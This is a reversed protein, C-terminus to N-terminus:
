HESSVCMCMCVSVRVRRTCTCLCTSISVCVGSALKYLLIETLFAHTHTHTHRNKENYKLRRPNAHTDNKATTSDGRAGALRGFHRGGGGVGARAGGPLNKKGILNESTDRARRAPREDGRVNSIKGRVESVKTKNGKRPRYAITVRTAVVLFRDIAVHAQM